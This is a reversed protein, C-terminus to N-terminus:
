VYSVEGEEESEEQIPQSITSPLDGGIGAPNEQAKFKEAAAMQAQQSLKLAFENDM